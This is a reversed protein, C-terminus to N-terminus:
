LVYGWAGRYPLAARFGLLFGMTIHNLHINCKPNGEFHPPKKPRALAVNQPKRKACTQAFHEWDAGAYCLFGMTIHNLHINCKPNGEFHPPKKPRALAM